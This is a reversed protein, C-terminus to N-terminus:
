QFTFSQSHLKFNLFSFLSPFGQEPPIVPLIYLSHQIIYVSFLGAIRCKSPTPFQALMHICIRNVLVM